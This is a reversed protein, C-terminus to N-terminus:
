DRARREKALEKDWERQYFCGVTMGAPITVTGHIPHLISREQHVILCPGDLSEDSWQEPRYIEVGELSDLCHKAGITNGPVLQRDQQTPRDVRHYHKPISEVIIINLDGQAVGEGVELARSMTVPFGPGIRDHEGNQIKTAHNQIEQIVSNMM